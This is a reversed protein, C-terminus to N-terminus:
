HLLTCTILFLTFHHRARGILGKFCFNYPGCVTEPPEM